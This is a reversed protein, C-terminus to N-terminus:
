LEAALSDVYFPLDVPLSGSDIIKVDQTPRDKGDTATNCAQYVIDQLVTYFYTTLRNLAGVPM